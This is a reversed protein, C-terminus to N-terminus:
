NDTATDAVEEGLSSRDGFSLVRYKPKILEEGLQAVHLPLALVRGGLAQLTARDDGFVKGAAITIRNSFEWITVTDDAKVGDFEAMVIGTLNEPTKYEEMVAAAVLKVNHVQQKASQDIRRQLVGFMNFAETMQGRFNELVNGRGATAMGRPMKRMGFDEPHEVTLGNNCILRLTFARAQPVTGDLDSNEISFGFNVIDASGVDPNVDHLGDSKVGYEITPTIFELLMKGNEMTLSHPQPLKGHMGGNTNALTHDIAALLDVHNIPTVKADLLSALNWEDEGREFRTLFAREGCMQGFLSNLATQDPGGMEYLRNVVAMPVKMHKSMQLWVLPNIPFVGGSLHATPQVTGEETIPDSKGIRFGAGSIRDDRLKGARDQFAKVVTDWSEPKTTVTPM